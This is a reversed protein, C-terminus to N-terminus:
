YNVTEAVVVMMMVLILMIVVLAKDQCLMVLFNRTVSRIRRSQFSNVLLLIDLVQLEVIQVVTMQNETLTGTKDSCIVTTSGLAEVAPLRRIISHRRAMRNVAISLTITVAAPLGEPIIAVALAVAAMFTDVPNHAQILGDLFTVTALAAIVYLLFKSFTALKRGLPTVMEKATHMKESIKGAETKDGISVVIGLGQGHTVMTGGYAMNERDAVVTDVGLVDTIKDASISEGTLASEDIQLDRVDFLRIDAPVKDGSRLIVIDGPVLEESNVRM